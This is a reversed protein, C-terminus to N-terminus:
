TIQLILCRPFTMSTLPMKFHMRCTYIETEKMTIYTSYDKLERVALRTQKGSQFPLLLEVLHHEKILSKTKLQYVIAIIVLAEEPKVGLLNAVEM